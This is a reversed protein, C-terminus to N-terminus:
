RVRQKSESYARWAALQAQWPTVASRTLAPQPVFKDLSPLKQARGLAAVHWVAWATDRAERALRM